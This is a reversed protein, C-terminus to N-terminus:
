WVQIKVELFLQVSSSAGPRGNRARADSVQAGNSSSMDVTPHLYFFERRLMTRHEHLMTCGSPKCCGFFVNAVDFSTM